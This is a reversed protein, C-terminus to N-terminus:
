VIASVLRVIEDQAPVECPWGFTETLRRRFEDAASSEGHTIFVKEPSIKSESFWQIMEKYDAHTLLITNQPFPAFAKLHHLIRGGTLMGSASIILMPSKQENLSKSEEVSHIYKVVDCTETCEVETLKHLKKFEHFIKTVNTAMPSNLYMPFEPIRKQKKLIFLDHMIAQARGVAFAPILM